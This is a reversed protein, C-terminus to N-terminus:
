KTYITVGLIEGLANLGQESLFFYEANDDFTHHTALGKDVLDVLCPYDNCTSHTSFFNRYPKYFLKNHRRYPCQYDLGIMHKMLDIQKMTVDTM